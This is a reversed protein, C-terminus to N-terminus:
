LRKRQANTMRQFFDQIQTENLEAVIGMIGLSMLDKRDHSM